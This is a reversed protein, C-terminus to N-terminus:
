KGIAWAYYGYVNRAATNPIYGGVALSSLGASGISMLAAPSTGGSNAAVASAGMFLTPFAIPFTWTVDASASTNGTTWQLILGGPLKQYGSGALSQNGSQFAAALTGPSIVKTTISLAQAEANSSFVSGGTLFWKSVSDGAVSRYDNLGSLTFSTAGGSFTDAGARSVTATNATADLRIFQFFIPAGTVVNVAPLTIAVNNATADIMVLGADDATLATPGAATITRVNGGFLRKIAQRVQTLAAGSAVIGAAEIVNVIEEQIGNAWAAEFDTPTIGLGLNGDKFGHKGVGYLDVAKTATAIRQM